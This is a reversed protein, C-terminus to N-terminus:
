EIRQIPAQNLFVPMGARDVVRDQAVHVPVPLVLQHKACDVIRSFPQPMRFIGKAAAGRGVIAGPSENWGTVPPPSSAYASNGSGSMLWAIPMHGANLLKATSSPRMVTSVGSGSPPPM